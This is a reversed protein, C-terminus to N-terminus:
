CFFPFFLFRELAFGDLCELTAITIIEHKRQFREMSFTDCGQLFFFFSFSSCRQLVVVRLIADSLVTLIEMFYGLSDAVVKSPLFVFTSFRLRQIRRQATGPRAAGKRLFVDLLLLALHNCSPLRHSLCYAGGCSSLM